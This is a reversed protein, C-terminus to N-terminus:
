AVLDVVGRRRPLVPARVAAADGPAEAADGGPGSRSREPARGADGGGAGRDFVGGGALTLGAERLSSALSPLAQELSQRTPAQEAALVVRAADGDIRIRVEVPGMEAPNLHLRAHEVGEHVFAVLRASLEGAFAPSGPRAALSAEAPPAATPTPAWPGAAGPGAASSVGAAGPQPLADAAAGAAARLAAAFGGGASTGGAAEAATGGPTASLADSQAGSLAGSLAGSQAGSLVGSPAGSATGSPKGSPGGFSADPATGPRLAQMAGAMGRATAAGRGPLALTPSGRPSGDAPASGSAPDTDTSAPTAAASDPPTTGTRRAAEDPGPDSAAPASRPRTGEAAGEAPAARNEPNRSDASPAVEDRGADDAADPGRAPRERARDLAQAFGPGGRPPAAPAGPRMPAPQTAPAPATPLLSM